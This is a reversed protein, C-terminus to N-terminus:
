FLFPIIKRGVVLAFVILVLLKLITIAFTLFINHNSATNGFFAPLLVLVLITFIDEMILWGIATHGTPTHLMKNDSLVRTLVVTSAVSITIGLIMGSIWSWGLIKVLLACIVTSTAIQILAGTVAVNKVAILDSLKFHMGVGFMLLVVGIEACQQSISMDAVFGPSHPSVLVGAILYGVLPSLKIKNAIYGLILAVTLGSALTLILDLNHEM